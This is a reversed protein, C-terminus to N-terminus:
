RFNKFFEIIGGQGGVQFGTFNAIAEIYPQIVYFAGLALAILILWYAIRFVRGWLISRHMKKLLVNNELTNEAITELLKKM